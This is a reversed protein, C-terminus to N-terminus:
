DEGQSESPMSLKSLRKSLEAIQAEAAELRPKLTTNIYTVFGNFKHQMEILEAKLQHVSPGLSPIRSERMM